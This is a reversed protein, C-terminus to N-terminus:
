WTSDAIKIPISAYVTRMGVAKDIWFTGGMSYVQEASEVLFSQEQSHGITVIENINGTYSGNDQILLEITSERRQLTIGLIDASCVCVAGNIIKKVLNYILLNVSDDLNILEKRQINIYYRIDYKEAYQACLEHLAARLGIRLLVHPAIENTLTHANEIASDLLGKLQKMEATMSDPYKIAEMKLHLSILKPILGHHVLELLRRRDSQEALRAKLFIDANNKDTGQFGKFDNYSNNNAEYM